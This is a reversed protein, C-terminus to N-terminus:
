NMIQYNKEDKEGFKDEAQISVVNYGSLLALTEGWNGEQDIYIEHGQLTLKIANKANGSIKIINKEEGEGHEIVVDRIKVGVILDKANFLAYSAMFIFLVTMLGIKLIKKLDNVKAM